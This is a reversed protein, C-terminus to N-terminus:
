SDPPATGGMRSFQRHMLPKLIRKLGTKVRAKNQWSMIDLSRDLIQAAHYLLTQGLPLTARRTFDCGIKQRAFIWKEHPLWKGKEVVHHALQGQYPLVPHWVSYFGHPQASARANGQHEFNWISEGPRLLAHLATRNWIAAQATLRYPSGAASEGILSEGALRDTPPPRPILRVQISSIAQAFKLCHLVKDTPVQQRIFFDDLTMLVHTQPLQELYDLVCRSWDRGGDSRLVTVGATNCELQGTGLYVPFPCDPWHRHLLTFFPNWLDAYADCSVVLLACDAKQIDPKPM